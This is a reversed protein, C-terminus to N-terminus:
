EARTQGGLERTVEYLLEAGRDLDEPATWEEKEHSIGDKSPVFLMAVPTKLAMMNGDHTAGSPMELFSIKKKRCQKVMCDRIRGDTLVPAKSVTQEITVHKLLQVYEKIKKEYDDLFETHISRIELIMEVEGNIVALMNPQIHVTETTAVFDEGYDGALTDAYLIIKAAKVLADERYKMKTTGSHNRKGQVKIRYRRLGVIGTVIGISKGTNQLTVGQEIHLEIYALSKTFDMGACRIDELCLAHSDDETLYLKADAESQQYNEWDKETYKGALCRSGFTGGLVNGEEGNTAILHIAFPLRVGEKQLRCMVEYAAAVGYLGDFKGGDTVTDLHSGLLLEKQTTGDGAYYGHVNGVPDIRGQFGNETLLNKLCVAAQRYAESGFPRSYAGDEQKGYFAITEILDRAISM